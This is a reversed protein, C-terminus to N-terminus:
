YFLAVISGIFSLTGLVCCIYVIYEGPKELVKITIYALCANCLIGSVIGILSQIISQADFGQRINAVIIHIFSLIAITSVCIYIPTFNVEYFENSSM